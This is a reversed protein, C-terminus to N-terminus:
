RSWCIRPLATVHLGSSVPLPLVACCLMLCVVDWHPGQQASGQGSDSRMSGLRWSRWSADRGGGSFLWPKNSWSGVGPLAGTPLPGQDQPPGLGLASQDTTAMQAKHVEFARTSGCVRPDQFPLRLDSVVSWWLPDRSGSSAGVSGAFMSSNRSGFRWLSSSRSRSSASSGVASSSRGFLSSSGTAPRL